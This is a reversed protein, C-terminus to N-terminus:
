LPRFMYSSDFSYLTKTIQYYIYLHMLQNYSFLQFYNILPTISDVAAAYTLLAATLRPRRRPRPKLGSDRSCVFATDAM